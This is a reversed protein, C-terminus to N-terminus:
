QNITPISTRFHRWFEEIDDETRMSIYQAPVIFVWRLVEGKPDFQSRLFENYKRKNIGLNKMIQIFLLLSSESHVFIISPQIQPNSLPKMLYGKCAAVVDVRWTAKLISVIDSLYQPQNLENSV